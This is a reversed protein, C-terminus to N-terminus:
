VTISAMASPTTIIVLDIDDRECVRKWDEVGTYVDPNHKTGALRAKAAQVKEPRVDCLAKFEAGEIHQMNDIYSPGRNGTGIIAVRVREMPPAAFGSMNFRQAHAKERQKSVKATDNEDGLAMARASSQFIGSGAMGLGILGTKEFFDRRNKKM